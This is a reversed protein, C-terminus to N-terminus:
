NAGGMKSVDMGNVLMGGTPTSEIKWTLTGDTETKAFGKAAVAMPVAQGVIEQPAAQLAEMLKDFGRAKVTFQEAPLFAPGATIAGEYSLEYIKSKLSSPGVSVNVAGKPLVAALLKADLEPSPPENKTLDTTEILIKAPAALDFDVVKFDIGFDTPVMDAAWPPVIGPPLALGEFTLAEHLLGDAVVGNISADFGLKDISVPGIPTTVSIKQLAGKGNINGFLPLSSSILTKLETQNAKVAEESAHAVFWRILQYISKVKMGKLTGDQTGSEAAVTIDIPMGTGPTAPMKIIENIGTMTVNYTGDLADAGAAVAKTEYHASKISYSIQMNGTEPATVKEEVSMDVFDAISSEFSALNEDFIGISKLSGLKVNLDLQNPVKTSFSVAQDQVVQWKGNGQSTLKMEFPTIQAEVGNTAAKKILPSFDLKVDYTEGNPTVTVVGPEQGLYSQFVGTLRTAEEPTATAALASASVSVLFAFASLRVFYKM